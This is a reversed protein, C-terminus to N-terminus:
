STLCRQTVKLWMKAATWRSILTDPSERPEQGASPGMVEAWDWTGLHLSQTSPLLFLCHPTGGGLDGACKASNSWGWFVRAKFPVDWLNWILAIWMLPVDWQATQGRRSLCIRQGAVMVDIREMVTKCATQDGRRWKKQMNRVLYPVIERIM